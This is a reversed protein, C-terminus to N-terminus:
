GKAQMGCGASCQSCHATSSAPATAAKSATWNQAGPGAFATGVAGLLFLSALAIKALKM